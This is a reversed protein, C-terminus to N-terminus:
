FAPDAPTNPNHDRERFPYNLFNRKRESQPRDLRRSDELRQGSIYMEISRQKYVEVLIQDLTLPGALAPLGAGVGFPDQSPQKTIIKNLEILAAAVDPSAQRAYAEAKILTIEGPLYVPWQSSISQAFGNMRWKPAVNENVALYFLIRQDASEPALEAPLGFTDDIPQWLNNSGTVANYIGNQNVTANHMFSSAKNLDVSNATSLALDYNGVYLAYRAKLAKLTNPIDIGAPITGLFASSIPNASIEALALDIEDIIKTYAEARTIFSVNEGTGAPVKEWFAALDGLALSKFITVYGVLGSALAKDAISSAGTTVTNADYLIKNSNTWLNSLLTNGGDISNGGQSLQLEATNGQNLLILENTLFGSATITNYINGRGAAYRSQLSVAVGTLGKTSANVDDQTARQPDTYDKVCGAFSLLFVALLSYIIFLKKKM